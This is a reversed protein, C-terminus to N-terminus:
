KPSPLAVVEKAELDITLGAKRIEEQAELLRAQLEADTLGTLKHEHEVKFHQPILHAMVMIFKDPRKRACKRLAEIGEEKWVQYADDVYQQAFKNRSGVPRGPGGSNGTVFRGGQDRQEETNETSKKAM